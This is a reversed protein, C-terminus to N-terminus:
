DWRLVKGSDRISETLATREALSMGKLLTAMAFAAAQPDSVQGNTLGAIFGSIEETTLSQGDRKKIIIEQPIISM